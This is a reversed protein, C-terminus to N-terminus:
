LHILVKGTVNSEQAEHAAAVQDLSFDHTPLPTLAGAELAETIASGGAILDRRPVGYLLVFRLAVNATM